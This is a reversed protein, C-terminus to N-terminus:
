FLCGLSLLRALIYLLQLVPQFCVLYPTSFFYGSCYSAVLLCRPWSCDLFAPKWTPLWCHRLMPSLSLFATKSSTLLQTLPTTPVYALNLPSLPLSTSVSLVCKFLHQTLPPSIKFLKFIQSIQVCKHPSPLLWGDSCSLNFVSSLHLPVREPPLWAAGWLFSPTGTM